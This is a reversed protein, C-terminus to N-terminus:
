RPNTNGRKFEAAAWAPCKEVPPHLDGLLTESRGCQCCQMVRKVKHVYHEVTYFDCREKLMADPPRPPVPTKIIEGEEEKRRTM